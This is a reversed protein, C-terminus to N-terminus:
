DPQHILLFRNAEVNNLESVEGDLGPWVIRVQDVTQSDGLGFHAEVPNQSVFNNGLQLERM